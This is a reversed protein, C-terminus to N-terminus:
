CIEPMIPRNSDPTPRHTLVLKSIKEQPTIGLAIDGPIGLFPIWVNRRSMNGRVYEGSM